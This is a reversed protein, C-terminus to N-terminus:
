NLSGPNTLLLEKQLAGPSWRKAGPIKGWTIPSATVPMPRKGTWQNAMNWLCESQLRPCHKWRTPTAERELGGPLQAPGSVSITSHSFRILTPVSLLGGFGTAVKGADRLAAQHTRAGTTTLFSDASFPWRWPSWSDKRTQPPSGAPGASAEERGQLFAQCPVQYLSSVQAPHSEKAQGKQKGPIFSGQFFLLFQEKGWSSTHKSVAAWRAGAM